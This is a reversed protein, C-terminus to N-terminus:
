MCVQRETVRDKYTHRDALTGSTEAQTQEDRQTIQKDTQRGEKTVM